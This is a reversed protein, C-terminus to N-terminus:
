RLMAASLHADVRAQVHPSTNMAILPWTARVKGSFTQIDDMILATDAETYSAAVLLDDINVAALSKGVDATPESPEFWRLAAHSNLSPYVVTAVFDYVPALRARLGDPYILSWNKIHADANGSLVMFVLRRIYERYDEEGCVAFIVAGITGYHAWDPVENVYKDEPPINFVQAFDEQHIRKGAEARDFRRVILVSQDPDFDEPLQDIERAQIIRHEPVALGCAEAWELMAFENEVLERFAPTGFKAVM